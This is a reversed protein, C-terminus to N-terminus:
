YGLQSHVLYSVTRLPRCMPRRHRKPGLIQSSPPVALRLRLSLPALLRNRRVRSHLRGAPLASEDRRLAPLLAFNVVQHM